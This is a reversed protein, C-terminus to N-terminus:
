LWMLGITEKNLSHLVLALWMMAEEDDCMASGAPNLESQALLVTGISENISHKGFHIDSVRSSSLELLVLTRHDFFNPLQLMDGM